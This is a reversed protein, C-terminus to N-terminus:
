KIISLIQGEIKMSRASICSRTRGFGPYMCQLFFVYWDKNTESMSVSEVNLQHFPIIDLFGGIVFSSLNCSFKLYVGIDYREINVKDHTYIYIKLHEM